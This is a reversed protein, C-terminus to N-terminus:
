AIKLSRPETGLEQYSLVDDISLETRVGRGLLPIQVLIRRQGSAEKEVIGTAGKLPGQLVMVETGPVLKLTPELLAKSGLMIKLSDIQVQPIPAAMLGGDLAKQKGVFDYIPKLRIMKVRVDPTLATHVFLYGPFLPTDLTKVRDSWLRRVPHSPLFSDFGLNLLDQHATKEQRTHVALAYWRPAEQFNVVGFM